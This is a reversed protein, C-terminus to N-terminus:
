AAVQGDHSTDAKVLSLDPAPQYNHVLDAIDGDTIHPFRVRVPEAVGDLTVYGIGPLAESIQDCRAGRDRAGPGLVLAVQEAETLRMAIRTPFLDRFALVEKRPDQLAGIVTVGAARGQSLLLSLAVGIRQKADRDSAYATVAALEDVVVLILPEEPTPTHLRSKGRLIGQRRRMVAVAAELLEAFETEYPEARDLDGYAFRHFLGRGLALEMGGKPDIPWVQVLGSRIAPGAADLVSWLVSGKGSGTAGVV